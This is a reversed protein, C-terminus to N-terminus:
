GGPGRKSDADSPSLLQEHQADALRDQLDQIADLAIEKEKGHDAVAQGGILVSAIALLQLALETKGFHDCIAVIVAGFVAYYFKKSKYFPTM